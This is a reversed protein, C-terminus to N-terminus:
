ILNTKSIRVSVSSVELGSVCVVTQGPKRNVPSRRGPITTFNVMKLGDSNLTTRSM